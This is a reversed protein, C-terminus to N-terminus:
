KSQVLEFLEKVTKAAKFENDEVIKGYEDEIMAIIAMGTLSDWSGIQRFDSELELTIEDADIFQNKFNELFEKSDM